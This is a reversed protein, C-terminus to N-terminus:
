AFLACPLLISEEPWISHSAAPEQGFALPSLLATLLSSFKGVNQTLVSREIFTTNWTTLLNIMTCPRYFMFVQFTEFHPATSPHPLYSPGIM